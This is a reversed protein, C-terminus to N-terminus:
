GDLRYLHHFRDDVALRVVDAFGARRALDRVTGVRLVTGTPESSPQSLAAPLCHLVSTTYQFREVENAPAIFADAVRADLVLVDGGDARLERCAALVEVPRPMEHLADFLCVLDYAGRQRPDRADRVEFVVRDAVGASEANSRAEVISARDIDFGDVRLAPYARALAIAAWGAGCAVDAVRGGERRLREDIGPAASRIWGPLFRLFLARNAGGHSERWDEGFEADAVGAGSRYAELLRPLALAVGGLPLVGAARSWPSDSLLLVERHPAPLTYVREHPPRLVDDVRIIGAAAQQELWEWAYRHAIGARRALEQCTAPSALAEYLRLRIGIYVCYLEQTALCMSWVRIGFARTQPDADEPSM